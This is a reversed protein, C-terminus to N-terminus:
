EDVDAFPGVDGARGPELPENEFTLILLCQGDAALLDLVAGLDDVDVHVLGHQVTDGGHGAEEAQDGGFRVDGPRRDHEVRGLPLDDLGAELAHLALRDDVRDGHLFALGGEDVLGAQSAAIASCHDDHGEVLRALGIGIGALGRDAGPGVRQERFLEAERGLVDNEVGVDEGDGGADLFVGVVGHVEDLRGAPDLLVQGMGVDGAADGVHGEREPAVLRYTRGDVGHKEVVGDLGAHVHTDDVGPLQADIVLDLRFQAAPHLVHHEVAAGVGAVTQDFEGARHLALGLGKDLVQGPAILRHFLAEGMRQHFANGLVDGLVGFLGADGEAVRDLDNFPRQHIAHVHDAVQEAGALHEQGLHHFRGPHHLLRHGIQCGVDLGALSGCGLGLAADEQGRHLAVHVVDALVDDAHHQAAIGIVDDVQADHHRGVLYQGRGLFLVDVDDAQGAENRRRQFLHAVDGPLHLAQPQLLREQDAARSGAQGVRRHLDVAVVVARHDVHLVGAPRDADAGLQERGVETGVEDGPGLGAIDLHTLAM